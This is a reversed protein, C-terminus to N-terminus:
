ATSSMGLLQPTSRQHGIQWEPACHAVLGLCHRRLRILVLEPRRAQSRNGITRLASRPRPSSSFGLTKSAGGVGGIVCRASAATLATAPGHPPSGRIIAATPQDREARSIRSCRMLLAVLGRQDAGTKRREHHMERAHLVLNGLHVNPSM